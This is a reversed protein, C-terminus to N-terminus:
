GNGDDNGLKRKMQVSTQERGCYVTAPPIRGISM